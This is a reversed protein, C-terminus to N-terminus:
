IKNIKRKIKRNHKIKKAYKRYSKKYIKLKKHAEIFKDFIDIESSDLVADIFFNFKHYNLYIWLFLFSLVLIFLVLSLVSIAAIYILIQKLQNVLTGSSNSGMLSLKKKATKIYLPSKLTNFIQSYSLLYLNLSYNTTLKANPDNSFNSYFHVIDNNIYSVPGYSARFVMPHMTTSVIDFSSYNEKNKINKNFLNNNSSCSIPIIPIYSSYQFNLQSYGSYILFPYSFSNVYKNNGPDYWNNKSNNFNIQTSRLYISGPSYRNTPTGPTGFTKFSNSIIDDTSFWYYAWNVNTFSLFLSNVINEDKNDNNYTMTSTLNASWKVLNDDSALPDIFSTTNYRTYSSDFVNKKSYQQINKNLSDYNLDNKIIKNPIFYNIQESSPPYKDFLTQEAISSYGFKKYFEDITWGGNIKQNNILKVYDSSIDVPELLLTYSLKGNLISINNVFFHSPISTKDSDPDISNSSSIFSDSNLLCTNFPTKPNSDVQTLIANYAVGILRNDNTYKCNLIQDGVDETTKAGYFHYFGINWNDNKIKYKDDWTSYFLRTYKQKVTYQKFDLYNNPLEHQNYEYNWPLGDYNFQYSGSFNIGFALHKGDPSLAVSTIRWTIKLWEKYFPNDTKDFEMQSIKIYTFSNLIDSDSKLNEFNDIYRYYLIGNSGINNVNSFYNDFTYPKQLCGIALNNNNDFSISSLIQDDNGIISQFQYRSIQIETYSIESDTNNCIFLLLGNYGCIAVDGSLDIASATPVFAPPLEEKIFNYEPNSNISKLGHFNLKTSNVITSQKTNTSFFNGNSNIYVSICPIFIFLFLIFVLFLSTFKNIKILKYLLKAIKKM